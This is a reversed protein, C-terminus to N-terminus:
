GEEPYESLRCFLTRQKAQHGFREVYDSFDLKFPPNSVIYDFTMLKDGVKHYPDFHYQGSHHKSHLTGPQEIDFEVALMSSSKQSIDQSYITCKDEGIAHALNM